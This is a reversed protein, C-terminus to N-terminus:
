RPSVSGGQYYSHDMLDNGKVGYFTKTVYKIKPAKVEKSLVAKAVHKRCYGSASNIAILCGCTKCTAGHAAKTAYYQASKEASAIRGAEVRARDAEVEEQDKFYQVIRESTYGLAVLERITKM